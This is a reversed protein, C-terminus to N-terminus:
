VIGGGDVDLIAGTVFSSRNTALFYVAQAVEEPTGIRCLPTSDALGAMVDKDLAANMKTDIVGPAVCNVRIGSPGVEKALAKTFSIIAGKSASYAVECSGGVRGWISSINVISGSHNRIMYPLVERSCNFAGGANVDMVKRFEEFTTETILKQPLAIGANNVLIDPAGFKEVCASVLLAAGSPKSVDAKVAIVDAGHMKLDRALERAAARSSYYGIVVNYGNDAFLRVCARGIGTAGGTVIVNGKNRIM